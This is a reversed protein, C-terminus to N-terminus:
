VNTLSRSKQFIAEIRPFDAAFRGLMKQKGDELFGHVLTNRNDYLYTKFTQASHDRTFTLIDPTLIDAVDEADTPGHRWKQFKRGQEHRLQSILQLSLEVSEGYLRLFTKWELKPHRSLLCEMARQVYAVSFGNMFM